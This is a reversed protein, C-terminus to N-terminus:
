LLPRKHRSQKRVSTRFSLAVSQVLVFFAWFAMVLLIPPYFDALQEYNHAWYTLAQAGNSVGCPIKLVLGPAEQRTLPNRNCEISTLNTFELHKLSDLTWYLPSAWRIPLTWLNMTQVQQLVDFLSPGSLEIEIM